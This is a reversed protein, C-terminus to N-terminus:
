VYNFVYLMIFYASGAKCQLDSKIIIIIHNVYTKIKLVPIGSSIIIVLIKRSIRCNIITDQFM